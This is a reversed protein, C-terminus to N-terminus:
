YKYIIKKTGFSHHKNTIGGGGRSWRSNLGEQSLIPFLLTEARPGYQLKWPVFTTWHSSSECFTKSTRSLCLLVENVSDRSILTFDCHLVHVQMDLKAWIPSNKLVNSNPSVGTKCIVDKFVRQPWKSVAGNELYISGVEIYLGSLHQGFNLNAVMNSKWHFYYNTQVDILLAIHVLWEIFKWAFGIVKFFRCNPRWTM